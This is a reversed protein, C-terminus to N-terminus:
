LARIPVRLREPLQEVCTRGVPARRGSLGHLGVLLFVTVLAAEAALRLCLAGNPQADGVVPLRHEVVHDSALGPEGVLVHVIGHDGAGVARNQVVERDRDVIEVGADRVDHAALVVQRVGGLLQEHEFRQCRLRGPVRV